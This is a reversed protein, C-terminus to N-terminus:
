VLYLESQHVHKGDRVTDNQSSAPITITEPKPTKNGGLVQPSKIRESVLRVGTPNEIPGCQSLLDHHSPRQPLLPLSTMRVRRSLLEITKSCSGFMLLEHNKLFDLIFSFLAEDRDVFIQGDITKFEQDRGDLMGVLRSTPFQKVTSDQQIKGGVNLTVLDQGNVSGRKEYLSCVM